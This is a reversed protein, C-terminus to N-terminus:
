LFKLAKSSKHSGYECIPLLDHHTTIFYIPIEPSNPLQSGLDVKLRVVPTCDGTQYITLLLIELISNM